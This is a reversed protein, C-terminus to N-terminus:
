SLAPRRELAATQGPEKNPHGLPLLPRLAAAQDLWASPVPQLFERPSRARPRGHGLAPPARTLLGNSQTRPAQTSLSAASGPAPLFSGGNLLAQTKSELAETGPDEERGQEGGPLASRIM